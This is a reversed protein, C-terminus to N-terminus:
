SWYYYGDDDQSIYTDYSTEKPCYYTYEDYNNGFVDGYFTEFEYSDYRTINM